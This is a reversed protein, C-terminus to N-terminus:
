SRLVHRGLAIRVMDHRVRRQTVLGEHVPERAVAVRQVGVRREGRDTAEVARDEVAQAAVAEGAPRQQVRDTAAVGRAEPVDLGAERRRHQRAVRERDLHPRAPGALREEGGAGDVGVVGAVSRTTM